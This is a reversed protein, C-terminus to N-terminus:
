MPRGYCAISTYCCLLAQSCIGSNVTRNICHLVIRFVELLVSLGNCVADEEAILSTRSKNDDIYNNWRDCRQCCTDTQGLLLPMPWMLSTARRRARNTSLHTVTRPYVTKTHLWDSLGVWSGIRLSVPFLYRSLPLPLAGPSPLYGYAPGATCWVSETTPRYGCVLDTASILM